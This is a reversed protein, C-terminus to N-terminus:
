NSPIFLNVKDELEDVKKSTHHLKEALEQALAEERKKEMKAKELKAKLEVVVAEKECSSDKDVSEM